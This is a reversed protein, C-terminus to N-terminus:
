GMWEIDKKGARFSVVRASTFLYDSLRNMYKILYKNVEESKRLAVVRREARRCVTRAVHLLASAENGGCLIFHKLVPLEEEIKDISKEIKEITEENIRPIKDSISQGEISAQTLDSPFALNSGISHLDKQIEMLSTKIDEETTEVICLGIFSNLEDVSGYAEVRLSDKSTKSGDCLSTEGYDGNKTYIKIKSAL